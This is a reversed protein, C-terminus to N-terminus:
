KLKGLLLIDNDDEDIESLLSEFYAKQAPTCGDNIISNILEIFEIPEYNAWFYGDQVKLTSQRNGMYDNVFNAKFAKHAKKDVIVDKAKGIMYVVYYDPIENLIFYSVENKEAEM